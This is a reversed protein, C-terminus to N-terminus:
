ENQKQACISVNSAHKLSQTRSALHGLSHTASHIHQPTLTNRCASTTFHANGIPVGLILRPDAENSWTMDTLTSHYRCRVSQQATPGPWAGM